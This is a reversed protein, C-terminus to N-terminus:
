VKQGWLGALGGQRVGRVVWPTHCSTFLHVWRGGDGWLPPQRPTTLLEGNVLAINLGRGVNDKVPSM